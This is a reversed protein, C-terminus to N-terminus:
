SGLREEEEFIKRGRDTTESIGSTSYGQKQVARDGAMRCWHTTPYCLLEKVRVM